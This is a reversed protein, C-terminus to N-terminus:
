AASATSAPRRRRHRRPDGPDLRGPDDDRLRGPGLDHDRDPLLHEVASGAPVPLHRLRPGQADRERHRDARASHRPPRLRLALHDLRRGALDGDAPLDAGQLVERVPGPRDARRLGPRDPHRGHPGPAGLGRHQDLVQIQEDDTFIREYNDFGVWERGLRDQFSRKITSLAPYLLGFAVMLVAPLVFAASQVLEGRRSRLRSTLLLILAVVGFFLGIAIFMQLFKEGTSM